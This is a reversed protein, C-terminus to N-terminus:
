IIQATAANALKLKCDKLSQEDLQSVFQAKVQTFLNRSLPMLMLADVSSVQTQKAGSMYM